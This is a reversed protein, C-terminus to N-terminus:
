ISKRKFFLLKKRFRICILITMAVLGWIAIGIIIPIMQVFQFSVIKQESSIRAKLFDLEENWIQTSIHYPSGILYENESSKIRISNICAYQDNIRGYEPNSYILWEQGKKYLYNCSGGCNNLGEVIRTTQGKFVKAVEFAFQQYGQKNCDQVEVITGIFILKYNDYDKQTIKEYGCSCGFSKFSFIILLIIIQISKM